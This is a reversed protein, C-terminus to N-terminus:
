EHWRALVSITDGTAVVLMNCGQSIEWWTKGPWTKFYIKGPELWENLFKQFHFCFFIINIYGHDLVYLINRVNKVLTHELLLLQKPTSCHRLHRNVPNITDMCSESRTLGLTRYLVHASGLNLPRPLFLIMRVLSLEFHHFGHFTCIM